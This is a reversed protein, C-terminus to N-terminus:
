IANSVATPNMSAPSKRRLTQKSCARAASRFDTYWWDCSTPSTKPPTVQWVTLSMMLGKCSCWFLFDTLPGASVNNPCIDRGPIIGGPLRLTRVRAKTEHPESTKTPNTHPGRPITLILLHRQPCRSNAGPTCAVAFFISPCRLHLLSNWVRILSTDYTKLQQGVRAMAGKVAKSSLLLRETQESPASLGYFLVPVLTTNSGLLELSRMSHTTAPFKMDRTEVVPM